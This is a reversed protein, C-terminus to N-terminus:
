NFIQIGEVEAAEKLLQLALDSRKTGQIMHKEEVVMAPVLKLHYTEARQFDAKELAETKPDKYYRLFTAFDIGEDIVLQTIVEEDGINQNEVYLAEQFRDFLDM